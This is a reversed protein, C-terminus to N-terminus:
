KNGILIKQRAVRNMKETLKRKNRCDEILLRDKM